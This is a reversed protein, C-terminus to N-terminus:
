WEKFVHQRPVWVFYGEHRFVYSFRRCDFREYRDFGLEKRTVHKRSRM